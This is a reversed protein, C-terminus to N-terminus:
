TTKLNGGGENKLKIKRFFIIKRISGKACVCMEHALTMMVCCYRCKSNGLSSPSFSLSLSFLLLERKLDIQIKQDFHDIAKHRKHTDRQSCFYPICIAFMLTRSLTKNGSNILM